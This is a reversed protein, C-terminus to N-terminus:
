SICESKFFDISSNILEYLTGNEDMEKYKQLVSTKEEESIQFRDEAGLIRKINQTFTEKSIYEERNNYLLDLVYIVFFRDDSGLDLVDSLMAKRVKYLPLIREIKVVQSQIYEITLDREGIRSLREKVVTCCRSLGEEPPVSLISPACSLGIMGAVNEEKTGDLHFLHVSCISTNPLSLCDSRCIRVKYLLVDWFGFVVYLNGDPDNYEFLLNSGTRSYQDMVTWTLADIVIEVPSDTCEPSLIYSVIDRYKEEDFACINNYLCHWEYAIKAIVHLTENSAFLNRMDSKVSISIDALNLSEIQEKTAGRIKLLDSENGVITKKGNKDTTSFMRSTGIISVRDSVSTNEFLYGDINLEASFRVPDGDRETLGLLNRFVAFRKIMEKEYNDNTFANHTQCVFRKRVKAGTLAWPIIDSTTIDSEMNCYVCSM